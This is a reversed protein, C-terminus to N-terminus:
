FLASETPDHTDQPQGANAPLQWLWPGDFSEKRAPVGIAKYARRLTRDTFGVQAGAEIVENAPMVQCAMHERLWQMAESRESQRSDNRPKLEAAFADDAHMHVPDAEWAVRGDDIRYALGDPDKGLNLKAPLFLRRQPDGTDKTIAWVARAAAAFALSGMSRYIAKSGGTKSLHTVAVVAIQHKSALEALPALMGRVESNNHSDVSGTYASIPDIVVLRVGAHKQLVEDLRPVDTELSFMRRKAGTHIGELAIIKSDDANAKDLRPAITDALDDECNLLIVKGSPQHCLPNDPWREGRSVRASIDLTVFSKGLGPDGALLTLKGLPIRGPWLWHLQERTVANLLQLIVTPVTSKSTAIVQKAQALIHRQQRTFSEDPAHPIAVRNPVIEAEVWPVLTEIWPQIIEKAIVSEKVGARALEEWAQRVFEFGHARGRTRAADVIHGRKFAIQFSDLNPTQFYESSPVLVEAAEMVKRREDQAREMAAYDIRKWRGAIRAAELFQQRYAREAAIEEPTRNWLLGDEYFRVLHDPLHVM